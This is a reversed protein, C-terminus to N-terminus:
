QLWVAMLDPHPFGAVVHSLVYRTLINPSHVKLVVAVDAFTQGSVAASIECERPQFQTVERLLQIFNHGSCCM